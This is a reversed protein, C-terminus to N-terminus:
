MATPSQAPKRHIVAAKKKLTATCYPVWYAWVKTVPMIPWRTMYSM